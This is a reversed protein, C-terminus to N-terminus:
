NGELQEYYRRTKINVSKACEWAEQIAVSKSMTTVKFAHKDSRMKPEEDSLYVYWIYGLQEITAYKNKEIKKVGTRSCFAVRNNPNITHYKRQSM